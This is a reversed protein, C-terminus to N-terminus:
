GQAPTLSLTLRGLDGFVGAVQVHYTVGRVTPMELTAQLSALPLPYDQETNDECAVQRLTAGSYVAIATDFSSGATDLRVPEGTGVFSYWLSRGVPADVCSMGKETAMTAARNTTRVTDGVTLRAAGAITDNAPPTGGPKPGRAARIIERSTVEMHNCTASYTGWPITVTGTAQYPTWAQTVRAISTRLVHTTTPGTAKLTITVPYSGLVEGTHSNRLPLVTTFTGRPDDVAGFLNYRQGNRYFEVSVWYEGDSPGFVGVVANGSCTVNDYLDRSFRVTSAPQNRVYTTTTQSGSCDLTAIEVRPLTLDVTADLTAAVIHARVRQNGSGDRTTTEAESRVSLTATLSGTGVFQMNADYVDLDFTPTGGNWGGGSGFAELTPADERGVRVNAGDGHDASSGFSVAVPEGTTTTGVCNVGANFVVVSTQPAASAPTL